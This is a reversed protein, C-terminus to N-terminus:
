ALRDRHNRVYTMATPVSVRRTPSSADNDGNSIFDPGGRRARELYGEFLSTKDAVSQLSVCCVESVRLMPGKIILRKGSRKRGRVDQDQFLGRYM